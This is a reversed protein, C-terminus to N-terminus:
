RIDYNVMVSVELESEGIPLYADATQGAGSYSMEKAMSAYPYYGQNNDYFSSVRVIRAGLAKALSEAKENADAIAQLRLKARLGDVDDFTKTLGGVYNLNFQAMGGWIENSKELDRIKVTVTQSASFGNPIPEPCSGGVMIRDCPPYTFEQNISVSSTDIDKEDVGQGKLFEVAAKVKGASANQAGDATPNKEYVSFSFEAVNPMFKESSKGEVSINAPYEIPDGFFFSRISHASLALLFIALLVASATMAGAFVAFVKNTQYMEKLKQFM